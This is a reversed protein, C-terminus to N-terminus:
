AKVSDVKAAKAARAVAMRDRLVAKEAETLPRRKRPAKHRVKKAKYSEKLGKGAEVGMEHTVLELLTAAFQWGHAAVDRVGHAEDACHHAVEHLVVSKSRSWRPMKIIRQAWDTTACARSRGRGDRVEIGGGATRPWRRRFWASAVLKDVYVQMEAVTEYRPGRRQLFNEANYVKQRQTDRARAM